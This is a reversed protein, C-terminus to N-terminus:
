VPREIYDIKGIDDFSYNIELSDTCLSNAKCYSDLIYHIRDIVGKENVQVAISNVEKEEYDSNIGYIDKNITNGSIFLYYTVKGSDYETKSSYTALSLIKPISSAKFFDEFLVVNDCKNWGINDRCYIIDNEMYYSNDLYQFVDRKENRKGEYLSSIGDLVVRYKYSYNKINFQKQDYYIPIGEEYDHSSYINREGLRAFIMLFLFFFFYFAFFCIAKGRPSNYIKKVFSLFKKM